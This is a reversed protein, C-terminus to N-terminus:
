HRHVGDDLEGREKTKQGDFQSHAHLDLTILMGGRSQNEGYDEEQNGVEKDVAGEVSHLNGSTGLNALGLKADHLRRFGKSSAQRLGESFLPEFPGIM